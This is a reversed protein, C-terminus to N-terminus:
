MKPTRQPVPGLTSVSARQNWRNLQLLCQTRFGQAQRFLDRRYRSSHQAPTPSGTHWDKQFCLDLNKHPSICLCWWPKGQAISALSTCENSELNGLLSSRLRIPLRKSLSPSSLSSWMESISRIVQLHYRCFTCQAPWSYSSCSGEGKGYNKKPIQNVNTPSAGLFYDSFSRITIEQTFGNFVWTRTAEKNSLPTNRNRERPVAVTM